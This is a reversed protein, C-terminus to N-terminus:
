ERNLAFFYVPKMSIYLLLSPTRLSWLATRFVYIQGSCFPRPLFCCLKYEEGLIILIIL